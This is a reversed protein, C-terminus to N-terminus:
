SDKWGKPLKHAIGKHCDICTEGKELAEAHRRRAPRVQAEPNMFLVNHCNRCERSDTNKMSTWVRKAMELRAAEFKEPTDVTGLIKHFLENTAQVKRIAKYYWEKPVHCDSCIARVGSRNSYHITEKLEKFPTDRMEHCSTCFTETNSLEMAWNYSGWFGIGGGFGVILLVALPWRPHPRWLLRWAWLLLNRKGGNSEGQEM